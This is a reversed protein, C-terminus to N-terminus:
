AGIIFIFFRKLFCLLSADSLDVVSMVSVWLRNQVDCCLDFVLDMSSLPLFRLIWVQIMKRFEIIRWPGNPNSAYSGKPVGWLVPNYRHFVFLLCSMFLCLIRFLGSLTKWIPRLLKGGTIGMMM